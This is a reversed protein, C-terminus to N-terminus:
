FGECVMSEIPNGLQKSTNPEKYIIDYEELMFKDWWISQYYTVMSHKILDTRFADYTHPTLLKEKGVYCPNIKYYKKGEFSIMKILNLGTLEKKIKRWSSVSIDLIDAVQLDKKINTNNKFKLTYTLSCNSAVLKNFYYYANKSINRNFLDIDFNDNVMRYSNFQGIKTRGIKKVGMYITLDELNVDRGDELLSSIRRINNVYDEKQISTVQERSLEEGTLKSYHEVNNM